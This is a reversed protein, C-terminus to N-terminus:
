RWYFVRQESPPSLEIEQNGPGMRRVQVSWTSLRDPPAAVDYVWLPVTYSVGTVRDDAFGPMGDRMTYRVVVYYYDQPGLGSVPRWSLVPQAGATFGDGTMPSLLVPAALAAVPPIARTPAAAPAAPTATVPVTTPRPPAPTATPPSVVAGAAPIRLLQGIQLVDSPSSNNYAALTEQTIGYRQAISFWNDGARVAYTQAAAGTTAAGAGATPVRLVQDIQLVDSPQSGNFAALAEQTVGYRRAITFWNDGAQVTHTLGGGGTAAAAAVAQPTPTAPASTPTSP